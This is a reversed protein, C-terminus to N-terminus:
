LAHARKLKDYITQSFPLGLINGWWAIIRAAYYLSRRDLLYKDDSLKVQKMSLLRELRSHLMDHANYLSAIESAKLQKATYIEYLIRIRRATESMNFVHFYLNTGLQRQITFIFLGHQQRWRCLVSLLVFLSLLRGRCGYLFGQLRWM